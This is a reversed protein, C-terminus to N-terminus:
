RPLHSLSLVPFFEVVENVFVDDNFKNLAMLQLVSVVPPKNGGQLEWAVTPSDPVKVQLFCIEWFIIINQGTLM